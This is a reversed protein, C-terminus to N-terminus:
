MYKKFNEPNLSVGHRIDLKTKPCKTCAWNIHTIPIPEYNFEKAFSGHRFKRIKWKHFLHIM